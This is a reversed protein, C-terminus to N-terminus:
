GAFAPMIERAFRRLNDRSGQGSLLLYEIGCRRLEDLKEAIEDPTGILAHAERESYGLIHSGPRSAAGRSLDLLRQNAAAQRELAQATDDADRAVWFNRAVAVRM